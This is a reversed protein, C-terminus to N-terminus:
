VAIYIQIDVAYCHYSLCHRRIIDAIPTTYMSFLIPGLASVQPVGYQLTTPTSTAQNIGVFCVYCHFWDLASGTIGFYTKLRDLLLNHDVTDFAASMDLLVVLSIKSHNM